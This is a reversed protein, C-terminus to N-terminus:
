TLSTNSAPCNWTQRPAAFAYTASVKVRGDARPAIIVRPVLQRIIQVREEDTLADLRDALGDLFAEADELQARATRETTQAARLRAHEGELAAVEARLQVLQIDLEEETIWGERAWTIVRARERGKAALQQEIRRTVDEAVVRPARAQRLKGLVKGPSAAFRAIEGWVLRELEDARVRRNGCSPVHADARSNCQYYFWRQQNSVGTFGRNCVGCRVLRM